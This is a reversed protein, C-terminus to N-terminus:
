AAQRAALGRWTRSLALVADDWSPERLSTWRMGVLRFIDLPSLGREKAWLVHEIAITSAPDRESLPATV